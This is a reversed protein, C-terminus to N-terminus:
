KAKELVNELNQLRSTARSYFVESDMGGFGVKFKGTNEGEVFAIHSLITPRYYKDGCLQVLRRHSSSVGVRPTNDKASLYILTRLEADTVLPQGYMRQWQEQIYHAIQEDLGKEAPYSVCKDYTDVADVVFAGLMASIGLEIDKQGYMKGIIIFALDDSTGPGKKRRVFASEAKRTKPSVIIGLEKLFLLKEEDHEHSALFDYDLGALYLMKPDVLYTEGGGINMERNTLSSSNFHTLTARRSDYNDMLGALVMGKLTYECDVHYDRLSRVGLLPENRLTLRTPKKDLAADVWSFVNDILHQRERKTKTVSMGAAKIIHPITAHPYIYVTRELESNSSSFKGHGNQAHGLVSQVLLIRVVPDNIDLDLKEVMSSLDTGVLNKFMPDQFPDAPHQFLQRRVEESGFRDLYDAMLVPSLQKRRKRAM